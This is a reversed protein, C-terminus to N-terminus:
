PAAFIRGPLDWRTGTAALVAWLLVQNATLVTLGTRRELEAVAAAARFGNGGLFVADVGAGVQEGVRDVVHEPRVDAPDAPIGTARVPTVAFGQERLYAAGLEGADDDFWPPHVLAVRRCGYARLAAVAASGSSVVPVGCSRALRETLAVEAEHGLVYSTSTSAYAVADVAGRFPAVAAELIAPEAAARLADPSSPPPGDPRVRALVVEVRGGTMEPLEVEAGAAGHPTVVGVRM